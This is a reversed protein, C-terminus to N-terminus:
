HVGGKIQIVRDTETSIILAIFSEPQITDGHCNANFYYSYKQAEVDKYEQNVYLGRHTYNPKGLIKLVSDLTNNNLGFKEILLNGDEWKRIDMCGLSDTHWREIAALTHKDELMKPNINKWKTNNQSVQGSCSIIGWLLATIILLQNM